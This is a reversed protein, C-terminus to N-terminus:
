KSATVSASPAATPRYVAGLIKVLFGAMTLILAGKMFSNNNHTLPLGGKMDNKQRNYEIGGPDAINFDGQTEPDDWLFFAACM